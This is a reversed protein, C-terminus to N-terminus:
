SRIEGKGNRVDPRGRDSVLGPRPLRRLFFITLGCLTLRVRPPPRGIRWHHGSPSAAKIRPPSCSKTRPTAIPPVQLVICRASTIMTSGRRRQLPVSLCRRSIMAFSAVTRSTSRCLLYPQSDSLLWGAELPDGTPPVILRAARPAQLANPAKGEPKEGAFYRECM